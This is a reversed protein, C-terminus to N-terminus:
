FCHLPHPLPQACLLPPDRERERKERKQSFGPQWIVYLLVQFDMLIKSIDSGLYIVPKALVSDPQPSSTGVWSGQLFVADGHVHEPLELEM